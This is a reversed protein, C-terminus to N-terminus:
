NRSNLLINRQGFIVDSCYVMEHKEHVILRDRTVPVLLPLVTIVVRLCSLLLLSRPLINQDFGSIVVVEQTLCVSPNYTGQLLKLVLKFFFIKPIGHSNSVM